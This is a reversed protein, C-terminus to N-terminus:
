TYYFSARASQGPQTGVSVIGHGGSNGATYLGGVPTGGEGTDSGIGNDGPRGGVGVSNIITGGTAAAGGAGPKGGLSITSITGNGGGPSTMTSFGTVTGATITSNATSGGSGLSVTFTHGGQGSVNLITRSYAGSGGGGGQTGWGANGSGGGQGTQGWLEIVCQSMGSPITETAGSASTRISLTGTTTGGFSASGDTALYWKANAKTCSSVAMHAGYWELLDNSAGFGIGAVKMYSGNDWIIKGTGLSLDGNVTIAASMSGSSLKSVALADILAGGVVINQMYVVGGTVVFPVIPTNTPNANDVIAFRNALVIFDSVTAGNITTSALGFGAVRGNVDVKVTYQASLGNISTAQTALTATHGSVTTTVTSINTANTSDASARTTSETVIAATNSAATSDIGALRTAFSTTADVQVKNMDLIWATSGGSMAGMLNLQSQLASDGAIRATQESLLFTSISGGGITLSDVIAQLSDVRTAQSLIAQANLDIDSVRQNLSALLTSQLVSDVVAAIMQQPSSQVIGGYGAVSTLGDTISALYQDNIEQSLYLNQLTALNLDAAPLLAGDTFTVLASLPTVRRVEVLTGIVPTSYLTVSSPSAFFWLNTGIVVNNILVQIHSKDIYNFPINFTATTGNVSFQQRSLYTKAVPPNVFRELGQASGGATVGTLTLTTM